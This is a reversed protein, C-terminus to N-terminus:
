DFDLRSEIEARWKEGFSLILIETILRDTDEMTVAKGGGVKAMEELRDLFPYRVKGVGRKRRATVSEGLRNPDTFIAHVVGRNEKRSFARVAAFLEGTNEPHYPADGIVVIVKQADKRWDLRKM